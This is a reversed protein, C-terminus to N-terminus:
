IPEQMAESEAFFVLPKWEHNFHISLDYDVTVFLYAEAGALKLGYPLHDKLEALLELDDHHVRVSFPIPGSITEGLQSTCLLVEQEPINNRQRISGDNDLDAAVLNSLTIKKQLVWQAIKRNRKDIRLETLYLFARAVALTSVLLWVIAFCRGKVTKFVYDGYGVTTVSTVSLYFSDTWSLSELVHAMATGTAICSVVVGLALAVKMRIRMRGKKTDIMYTKFMVNFWNEDLASLLVTEQRDLVYVVFGNLLIDIFGFGVLVFGCTFLKSFTTDPKIDGYGITCHTVVSFNIADVLRFTSQGKFSGSRVMYVVIGIMIYAIVGIFAQRAISPTSWMNTGNKISNCGSDEEKIETFLSPASHSRLPLRKRKNLNAILNIYSASPSSRATSPSADHLGSSTLSPKASENVVVRNSLLLVDM